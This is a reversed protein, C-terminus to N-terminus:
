SFWGKVKEFMSGFHDEVISMSISLGLGTGKGVTKTTYFPDFLKTISKEPIGIGNDSFEIIIKENLKLTKISINGKEIPDKRDSIADIANSLINIFVQSLRGPFIQIQPLTDYSKTVEIQATLKSKLLFILIM